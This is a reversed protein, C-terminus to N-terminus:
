NLYLVTIVSHPWACSTVLCEKMIFVFLDWHAFALLGPGVAILVTWSSSSPSVLFRISLVLISRESCYFCFYELEGLPKTLQWLGNLSKM